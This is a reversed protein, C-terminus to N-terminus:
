QEELIMHKVQYENNEAIIQMAKNNRTNIVIPAKMNVSTKSVDAPVTALLFVALDEIEFDGLQKLLADEVVPDYSTDVRFPNVIPFALGEETICQLWSFFAEQGEEIDYLITYDTYQEFGPIGKEFHIVKTDEIDVEGFYRTKVRM